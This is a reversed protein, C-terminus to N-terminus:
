WEPAPRLPLVNVTATLVGKEKGLRVTLMKKLKSEVERCNSDVERNNNDVEGNTGDVEGSNDNVEGSNDNVEGSNGDELNVSMFGALSRRSQWTQVRRKEQWLHSISPHPFHNCGRRDRRCVSSASHGHVAQTLRSLIELPYQRSFVITRAQNLHQRHNEGILFLHHRPLYEGGKENPFALILEEASRCSSYQTGRGRGGERSREGHGVRRMVKREGLTTSRM